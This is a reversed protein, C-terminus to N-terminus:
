DVMARLKVWCDDIPVCCNLDLWQESFCLSAAHLFLRGSFHKDVWQNAAQNGYKRDGLIPYGLAAAHVRIQHTRGTKPTAFLLSRRSEVLLPEFRTQAPKGQEHDVVVMREGNGGTVRLLPFDVVQAGGSWSGKVWLFYGKQVQRERFTEQLAKLVPGQKALLLLGSTERDLRHVLEWSPGFAPAAKINEILGREIGTGAHVPMGAPKNLVLVEDLQMVIQAQLAEVWRDSPPLVTKKAALQIPPVRVKEGVSLRHTQKIRGGNVRVEGSRIAKYIRSKPVGKLHTILFNDIRQGQQASQVEVITAKAV